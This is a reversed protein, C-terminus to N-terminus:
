FSLQMFLYFIHMAISHCISFSPQSFLFSKNHCKAIPFLGVIINRSPQFCYFFAIQPCNYLINGRRTHNITNLVFRTVHQIMHKPRWAKYWCNWNKCAWQVLQHSMELSFIGHLMISRLWELHSNFCIEVPTQLQQLHSDPPKSKTRGIIAVIHTV